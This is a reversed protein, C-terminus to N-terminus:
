QRLYNKDFNIAAKAVENNGSKSWFEVILEGEM